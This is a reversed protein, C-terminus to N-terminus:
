FSFDARKTNTQNGIETANEEGKMSSTMSHGSKPAALGPQKASAACVATHFPDNEFDKQREEAGKM